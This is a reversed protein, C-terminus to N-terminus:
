THSIHQIYTGNDAIKFEKVEQLDYHSRFDHAPIILHEETTEVPIAGPVRAQEGAEQQEALLKVAVRKTNRSYGLMALLKGESKRDGLCEIPLALDGNEGFVATLASGTYFEFADEEVEQAVHQGKVLPLMDMVTVIGALYGRDDLVPLCGVRKSAIVAVAERLSTDATVTTLQKSMVEWAKVSDDPMEGPSSPTLKKLLDRDSVVGQPIGDSDTVVLHRVGHQSMRKALYRAPIDLHVTRVDQVMVDRVVLQKENM